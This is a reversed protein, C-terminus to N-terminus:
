AINQARGGSAGLRLGLRLDLVLDALRDLHDASREALEDASDALDVFLPVLHRHEDGEESALRRNLEIEEFDLLHLMERKMTQKYNASRRAHRLTTCASIALALELSPM